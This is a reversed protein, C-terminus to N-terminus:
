LDDPIYIVERQLMIRYKLFVTEQVHSIIDKVDKATAHGLNVIWNAHEYTIMADGARYGRLGAQDIHWGASKGGPPSKFVSGCNRKVSPQKQRRLTIIEKIKKQIDAKDLDYSKSFTASLVIDRTEVLRSHRYSFSMDDKTLAKIEGAPTLVTASFFNDSIEGQKTGANIRVAGGVTGPIGCMFEFGGWGRALFHRSLAPLLGGGGAEVTEDKFIVNKFEGSLKVVLGPFGDDAVLINSGNGLIFWPLEENQLWNISNRLEEASNCVTFHRAPGGINYTTHNWLPYFEIM